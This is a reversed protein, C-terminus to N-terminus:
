ERVNLSIKGFGATQLQDMALVLRKHEVSRNATLQVSVTKPTGQSSLYKALRSIPVTTGDVSVPGEVPLDIRVADAAEVPKPLAASERPPRTGADPCPPAPQKSTVCGTLLGVALLISAIRCTRM